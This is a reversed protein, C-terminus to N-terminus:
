KILEFVKFLPLYLSIVIGGVTGGVVVIMLPEIIATLADVTAEVEADYFTAIKDLMTDLAGTEEGVTMMQVVMPPFVDYNALPKSLSEGQKVSQQVELIADSIVSNNVTDAVIDLAQLIPVGSSSLVGLTRSFRALAAKQFLKGFIPLRLKFRDFTRRGKETKVWRRFGFFAGVIALLVFPAFKTVLKSMGILMKTPLPLEGGFDAYLREFTPVVFVLMATLILLVMVLVVTPYSMASKVKRRLSVERELTDSVRLLVADLAGGTEGSRIMAVYLKNFAKPHKAMANSLSSGKEVDQRIEHLVKALETSETQQELISLCRLMPLGSNIMTAFQRSFITLDKLKVKGPFLKIERKLGGGRKVKVELPVYGMERLKAVVLSEGDAELEGTLLEGRQDRVRYTYTEAM